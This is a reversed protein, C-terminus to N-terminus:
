SKGGAGEEDGQYLAALKNALLYPVGKHKDVIAEYTPLDPFVICPQVFQEITEMPLDGTQKDKKSSVFRKFLIAQGLKVVIPSEPTQVMAFAVGLGGGLEDEFRLELEMILRQRKKGSDSRAKDRKDREAALEDDTMTKYDAM